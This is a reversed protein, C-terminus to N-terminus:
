KCSFCFASKLRLYTRSAGKRSDRLVCVASRKRGPKGNTMYFIATASAIRYQKNHVRFNLGGPLVVPVAVELQIPMTDSVKASQLLGWKHFFKSLKGFRCRPQGAVIKM